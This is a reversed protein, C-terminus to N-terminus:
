EKDAYLAVTCIRHYEYNTIDKDHRAEEVISAHKDHTDNLRNIYYQLREKSM